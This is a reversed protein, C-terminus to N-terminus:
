TPTAASCAKKRSKKCKAGNSQTPAVNSMDVEGHLHPHSARYADIREHDKKMSEAKGESILQPKAKLRSAFGETKELYLMFNTGSPTLWMGTGLCKKCMDAKRDAPPPPQNFNINRASEQLWVRWVETMFHGQGKCAPCYDVLLRGDDNDLM